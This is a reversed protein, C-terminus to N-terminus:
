EKGLDWADCIYFCSQSSREVLSVLALGIWGGDVERTGPFGRTSPKCGELQFSITYRLISIFNSSHVQILPVFIGSASGVM